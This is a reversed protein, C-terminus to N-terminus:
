HDWFDWWPLPTLALTPTPTCPISGVTGKTHVYCPVTWGPVIPSLTTLAMYAVLVVIATIGVIYVVTGRNM